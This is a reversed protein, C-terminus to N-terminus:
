LLIGGSDTMSIPGDVLPISSLTESEEISILLRYLKARLTRMHGLDVTWEIYGMEPELIEIGGGTMTLRIEDFGTRTDILRLTVETVSSLDAPLGDDIAVVEIFDSWTGFIPVPPLSSSMALAEVTQYVL